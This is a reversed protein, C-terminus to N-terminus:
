NKLRCLRHSADGIGISRRVKLLEVFNRPIPLPTAEWVLRELNFLQVVRRFAWSEQGGLSYTTVIAVTRERQESVEQPPIM